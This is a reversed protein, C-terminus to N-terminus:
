KVQSFQLQSEIINELINFLQQEKNQYQMLKIVLIMNKIRVNYWKENNVWLNNLQSLPETIQKASLIYKEAGNIDRKEM